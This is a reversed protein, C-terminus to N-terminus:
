VDEAEYERSFVISARKVVMLLTLFFHFYLSIALGSGIFRPASFFFLSLTATVTVVSLLILYSVNDNLERILAKRTDKADEFAKMKKPDDPPSM